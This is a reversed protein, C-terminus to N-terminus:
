YGIQKMQKNRPRKNYNIELFTVDRFFSEYYDIIHRIYGGISSNCFSVAIYSNDSINELFAICGEINEITSRVIEM